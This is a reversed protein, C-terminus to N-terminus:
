SLNDPVRRGSYVIGVSRMGMTLVLPLIAWNFYQPAVLFFLLLGCLVISYFSFYIKKLRPLPVLVALLNLPCAWILNLNVRAVTYDTFLWLYLLAFGVMGTLGFVLVDFVAWHRKSKIEGVVVLLGIALLIWNVVIPSNWNFAPLGHTTHNFDYVVTASVLRQRGIASQPQGISSHELAEFLNQPLFMRENRSPRKDAPLGLCVDIGFGIWPNYAFYPRIEQRFSKNNGAAPVDNGAAPDDVRYRSGYIRDIDDRIRTSCNDYFFDYKYYRNKLKLNELLKEWLLQKEPGQMNLVQERVMQHDEKYEQLFEQFPASSLYYDLRGALFKIYFRPDDFDFTGYNFVVDVGSLSDRIRIASHGFIAYPETNPDCTLISVKSFPSLPLGGAKTKSTFLFGFGLCIFLYKM